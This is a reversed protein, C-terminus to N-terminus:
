LQTSNTAQDKTAKYRLYLSFVTLQLFEGDLVCAESPKSANIASCICVCPIKESGRRLSAYPRPLLCAGVDAQWTVANDVSSLFKVSYLIKRSLLIKFRLQVYQVFDLRSLEEYLFGSSEFLLVIWDTNGSLLIKIM